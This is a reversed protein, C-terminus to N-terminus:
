QFFENAFRTNLFRYGWMSKTMGKCSVEHFAAGIQPGNLFHQPVFANGGCFNIGMEVTGIEAFCQLLIM